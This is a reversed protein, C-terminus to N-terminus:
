VGQPEAPMIENNLHSIIRQVIFFSLLLLSSLFTVIAYILASRFCVNVISFVYCKIGEDPGSTLVSSWDTLGNWKSLKCLDLENIVSGVELGKAELEGFNKAMVEYLRTPPQAHLHLRNDM